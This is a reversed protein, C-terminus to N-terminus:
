EKPVTVYWDSQTYGGFIGYGNTINNSMVVPQAFPDNATKKQLSTTKLYNYYEKTVNRIVFTYEYEQILDDGDPGLSTTVLFDLTTTKGNFYRDNMALTNYAFTENNESYAPDIFTMPVQGQMIVSPSGLEARFAGLIEYYNEGEPDDFTITVRSDFSGPYSERTSPGLKEFELDKIPISDPQTFESEAMPLGPREVTIKYIKGPKPKSTTGEYLTGIQTYFQDSLTLTEAFVGNEYIKVIANNITDFPKVELIDQSASIRAFWKHNNFGVCNVVLRKEQHPLTLIESSECGVFALTIIISAIITQKM